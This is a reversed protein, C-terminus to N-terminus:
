WKSYIKKNIYDFTIYGFDFMINNLGIIADVKLIRMVQNPLCNLDKPIGFNLDFVSNNFRVNYKYLKAEIKNNDKDYDIADGVYNNNEYSAKIFNIYAGTDVLAKIPKGDLELKITMPYAEDFSVPNDMYRPYINFEMKHDGYLTFSTISLIDTGIIGIVNRDILHYISEIEFGPNEQMPYNIGDIVVSNFSCNFRFTYPSGSDLLWRENNINIIVHKNIYEYTYFM